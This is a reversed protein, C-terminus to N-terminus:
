RGDTGPVGAKTARKSEDPLPHPILFALFDGYGEAEMQAAPIFRLALGNICYRRGGTEAPGDPFVHGLHADASRSRVEVREMHHSHDSLYHNHEALIPRSFSPWGCGADFQDLSSYLPEGSIVDVYIGPGPAARHFSSSFPRETAAQRTVRYAEESLSAQTEGDSPAPWQGPGFLPETARAVPIHCYAGPNKDLYDQHYTEAPIFNRLPQVEIQVTRRSKARLRALVADIVPRDDANEYYIGSRYQRGRDNGQQNLSYPDVIRLDHLLIEALRIRLPDYSLRLTEAHDSASLTEYHAAEGLGNAYGVETDMVGPIRRFYAEVGWFCGSALYIRRLNM